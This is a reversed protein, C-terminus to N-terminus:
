ESLKGNVGYGLIKVVLSLNCDIYFLPQTDKIVEPKLNFVVKGRYDTSRLASM